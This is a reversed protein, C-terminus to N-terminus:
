NIKVTVGLLGGAWKNEGGIELNLGVRESFFWRGGVLLRPWLGYDAVVLGAGLYFDGDRPIGLLRNWHYDVRGMLTVDGLRSSIFVDGGVTVDPHVAGDLGVYLPLPARGLGVGGNFALQGTGLPAQGGGAAAAMPALTTLIAALSIALRRKM